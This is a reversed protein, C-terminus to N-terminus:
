TIADTRLRQISGDAGVLVVAHWPETTGGAEEADKRPLPDFPGEVEVLTGRAKGGEHRVEIESGELSLLVDVYGVPDEAAGHLGAMARAGSESVASAFQVGQVRTDGSADLVVLTKLADDLHSAPLPLALDSGPRVGGRREFYGVGTEYLRLKRLPLVDGEAPPATWSLTTAVYLLTLSM